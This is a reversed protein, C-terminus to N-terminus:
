GKGKKRKKAWADLAAVPVTYERKYYRASLFGERIARRVVDVSVGKGTIGSARAAADPVKLREPAQVVSRNAAQEHKTM